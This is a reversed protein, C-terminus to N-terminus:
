IDPYLFDLYLPGFNLLAEEFLLLNRRSKGIFRAGVNANGPNQGDEGLGNVIVETVWDSLLKLHPLM